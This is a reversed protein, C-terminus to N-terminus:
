LTMWMITIIPLTVAASLRQSASMLEGVEPEGTPDIDAFATSRILEPMVFFPQSPERGFCQTETNYRMRICTALDIIPDEEDCICNKLKSARKRSYLIQVSNNCIVSCQNPVPQREFIAECHKEYFQLATYCQTDAECLMRALSCSIQQETDLVELVSIVDDSCVQIREKWQTCDRNGRCDCNLYDQGIDGAVTVLSIIARKCARSCETVYGSRLGDCAIYFNNLAGSCGIRGICRNRADLCSRQEATTFALLCLLVIGILRLM